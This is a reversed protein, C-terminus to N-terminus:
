RSALVEGRALRRAFRDITWNADAWTTNMRANRIDSEYWSYSVPTVTGDLAILKGEIRAGGVGFSHFSLGPTDGLQKFTPRNPQADVLVLEARGGALVGTRALERQVDHQLEQALENVDRLGYKEQALKELKPSLAVSVEPATHSSFTEASAGTALSLAALATALPLVRM